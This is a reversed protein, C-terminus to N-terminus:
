SSQSRLLMQLQRINCFFYFHTKTKNVSFVVSGLRLESMWPQCRGQLGTPLILAFLIRSWVARQLWPQSPHSFLAPFLIWLQIQIWPRSKQWTLGSPSQVRDPKGRRNSEIGENHSILGPNCKSRYEVTRLAGTLEAVPSFSSIGWPLWISRFEGGRTPNPTKTSDRAESSKGRPPSEPGM